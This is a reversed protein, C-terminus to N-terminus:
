AKWSNVGIWIVTSWARCCRDYLVSVAEICRAICSPSASLADDLARFYLQSAAKAEGCASESVDFAVLSEDAGSGPTLDTLYSHAM